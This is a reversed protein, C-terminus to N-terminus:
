RQKEASIGRHARDSETVSGDRNENKWSRKLNQTHIQKLLLLEPDTLGREPVTVNRMRRAGIQASVVLYNALQNAFLSWRSLAMQEFQFESELQIRIKEEKSWRKTSSQGSQHVVEVTPEFVLRWGARNIRWCWENDEGYMHFREDFGGVHEIMERRVLLAAGTLMPVDRRRDHSWHRGLLMEGRLRPPLLLYLKLQWLFTYWARPPNFYVSAQISGDTNLIKPGCGGIKTDSRITHLLKDITGPRVEADPNLLFLFPSDTLAFAQNNACGFGVNESSRIIRLQENSLLSLAATSSELLAVSDDESANDIVVVEFTTKSGSSVISEVCRRLLSGGNWNVIVISLEPHPVAQRDTM